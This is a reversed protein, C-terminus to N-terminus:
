GFWVRPRLMTVLVFGVLALAAAEFTLGFAALFGDAPLGSDAAATGRFAAFTTTLITAGFVIGITRTLMALSGAVGRETAPLRAMVIETYAVQFVGQGLGVLLLPPALASWGAGADWGTVAYLGVAVLALAALCLRNAALRQALPGGAFSGLIFGLPALALVVGSLAASFGSVIDLYYPVFLLVAFGAFNIMANALNAVAFDARRFMAPRIIPEALRSQRRVFFIFAAASLAALAAALPWDTVAHGIRNLALVSGALAATVLVAGAFDFRGGALRRVPRPLMFMALLTVVAIPVRFWFVSTWGWAEIMLGGLGPGVAAGLGFAMTYLGLVQPRRHEPYLAMALAASCSLILATGVGQAVRFVLLLAFSQAMACLALAVASVLLGLGFIRRHGFLDGLRGCVLILSSYTLVYCIVVWQIAGLPEGFAGTIHPFAVNVATDLPGLLTGLVVVSLGLGPRAPFRSVTESM